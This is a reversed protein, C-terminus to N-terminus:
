SRFLVKNVVAPLTGGGIDAVAAAPIVPHGDAGRGVALMGSRALYNIDHGPTRALPGDQGYGTLSCYIIRPNVAQVSAYDLGLRQMVGPRFQDLLVDAETALKLAAAKGEPSKLDLVVSKKGRNLLAFHLSEGGDFPTHARAGDGGAAEVKVVSAGADALMLTALPGPLLTGFDLVRIGELPLPPLPATAEKNAAESM